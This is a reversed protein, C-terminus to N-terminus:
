SSEVGGISFVNRLVEYPTTISDKVKRMGDERMSVMGDQLAQAKIDAASDGRLMRRRVEDSIVMIEHVGTRGLYGTNACLNCGRGQYYEKLEEGVVSSYALAEEETPQTLVRCHPCVRRIMRQAVVGILASSILFPEIGLDILRFLVGVADNAHISSLVLHGTLAAQVAVAATETDRIEGEMIIDPDLRKV